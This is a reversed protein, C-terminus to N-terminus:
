TWLNRLWKVATRCNRSTENQCIYLDLNVRYSGHLSMLPYVYLEAREKVEASSPSPPWSWAGAAKGVPFVQYGNYLLSPPSWPRYPLTCFIEGRCFEIGPRCLGCGTARDRGVAENQHRVSLCDFSHIDQLRMNHYGVSIICIVSLLHM